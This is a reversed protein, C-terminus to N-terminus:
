LFQNLIDSYRLTQEINLDNPPPNKQELYKFDVCIRIRDIVSQVPIERWWESRIDFSVTKKFLKDNRDDVESTSSISIGNPKIAVGANKLVDYFADAFFLAIIESLENCTRSSRSNVGISIQGEWAGAYTIAKPYNILKENGYGDMFKIPEWLVAGAERNFSIPVSRTGNDTVLLAPYFLSELRYHDGIYLRTVLDNNLGDSVQLPTEDIVKPFGWPDRQYHYYSDRSFFERLTEIFIEKPYSLMSNQIYYYISYLDTKVLNGVAM